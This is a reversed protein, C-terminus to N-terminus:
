TIIFLEFNDPTINIYLCDDIALSSCFRPPFSKLSKHSNKYDESHVTGISEKISSYQKYKAGSAVCSDRLSFFLINKSYLFIIFEM